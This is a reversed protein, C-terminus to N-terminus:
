IPEKNIPQMQSLMFSHISETKEHLVDNVMHTMTEKPMNEFSRIMVYHILTAVEFLRKIAEASQDRKKPTSIDIKRVRSIKSIVETVPMNTKTEDITNILMETIIACFDYASVMWLGVGDSNISNNLKNSVIYWDSMVQKLEEWKKLYFFM